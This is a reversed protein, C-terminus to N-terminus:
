YVASQTTTNLVILITSTATWVVAAITAEKVGLDACCAVSPHFPHLRHSTAFGM